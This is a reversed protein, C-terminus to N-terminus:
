IIQGYEMKIIRDACHAYQEDHTAVIVTKGRSKLDQLIKEYFLKRFDPSQDAAWEDFVYISKDEMLAIVLALRKKQGTSLEINTFHNDKWFTIHDLKMLCLLDNLKQEDVKDIGYLGDFLHYDSFIACFLYQANQINSLHDNILISGKNKPYLGTLIKLFTTKGSGNGGTLFIIEGKFINLNLPGISFLVNGHNDTYDFCLKKITITKIKDFKEAPYTNEKQSDDPLTNNLNELRKMAVIGRNIYPLTVDIAYLPPVIFMVISIMKILDPTPMGPLMVIIGILFYIMSDILIQYHSIIEDVFIKQYTVEKIQPILYNYYIDNNKEQNIKIEKFGYIVHNFLTYLETEKDTITHIQAYLAKTQFYRISFAIIILWLIIFLCVPYLIGIYIISIFVVITSHVFHIGLEASKSIKRADTTIKLYIDSKDYNEVYQYDAHRIKNGVLLRIKEISAEIYERSKRLAFLKFFYFISFAFLFLLMDLYNIQGPVLNDISRNIIMIICSSAIGSIFISATIYITKLNISFFMNKGDIANDLLREM